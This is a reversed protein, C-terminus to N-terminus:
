HLIQELRPQRPVERVPLVFDQIADASQAASLQILRFKSLSHAALADKRVLDFQQEFRGHALQTQVLRTRLQRGFMKPTRAFLEFQESLIWRQLLVKWFTRGLSGSGATSM